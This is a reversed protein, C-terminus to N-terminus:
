HKCSISLYQISSSFLHIADHNFLNYTRTNVENTLYVIYEMLTVPDDPSSIESPVFPKLVRSM